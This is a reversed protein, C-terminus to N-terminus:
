SETQRGVVRFLKSPMFSELDTLCAALITSVKGDGSPYVRVRPGIICFTRTSLLERRPSFNVLM